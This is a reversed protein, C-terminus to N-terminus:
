SRRHIRGRRRRLGEALARDPSSPRSSATAPADDGAGKTGHAAMVEALAAEYDLRRAPDVRRRSRRGCRRGDERRRTRSSQARRDARMPVRNLRAFDFLPLYARSSDGGSGTPKTRRPPTSRARSGATSCPSCPASVDRISCSPRGAAALAAITQLQWCHDDARDHYEGLLVIRSRAARAIVRTM